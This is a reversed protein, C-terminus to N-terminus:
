RDYIHPLELEKPWLRTTYTPINLTPKRLTHGHVIGPSVLDDVRKRIPAHILLVQKTSIGCYRFGRHPLHRVSYDQEEETSTSQVLSSTPHYHNHPRQLHQLSCQHYSSENSRLM